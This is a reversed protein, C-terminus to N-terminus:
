AEPVDTRWTKDATGRYRSNARTGSNATTPKGELFLKVQRGIESGFRVPVANGIQRYQQALTGEFRWEDPFTQVRAYEQVSLPRLEVPHALLTAPMTPSTVMTPAPEDWALRRLFGTRGGGCEYANGLALRQMDPPLSRWNQGPALHKVFRAQKERLHTHDQHGHLGNVADAFTQWRPQRPGGHTPTLYPARGSRSAVLVLRERRQPVGFNATDYLDFTTQFGASHLTALIQSLAGGPLEDPSMPAFGFGRESHPRHVLPASLLGRVNEIVILDPDLSVALRLFHLFVNGREDNLGLRRGATSFAQCPPGGVVAGIKSGIRLGGPELSRIDGEVLRLDPRNARVTRCAVKDAENAFVCEWGAQELGLDLGM